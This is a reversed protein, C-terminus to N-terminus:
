GTKMWEKYIYVSKGILKKKDQMLKKKKVEWRKIQENRGAEKKRKNTGEKWGGDSIILIKRWGM